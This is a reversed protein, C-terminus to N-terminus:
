GIAPFVDADRTAYAHRQANVYLSRNNVVPPSVTRIARREGGVEVELAAIGPQCCPADILALGVHGGITPSAGCTLVEGVRAAGLFLPAAEEVAGAAVFTTVRRRVGRGRAAALAVSGIAEKKSSVRWQLGLEIPDLGVQGERRVNFFGNELMAQDIAEISAPALDFARGTEALRARLEAASARPVVLDYGYEGTKGARLCLVEDVRYFALFPLGILDPGLAEGVLEWAYPGHLSVIEHTDTLVEVDAISGPARAAELHSVLAPAALGEAFVLLAEDDRGLYVDAIVRARDDLLV